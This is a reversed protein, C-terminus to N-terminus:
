INLHRKNSPGIWGLDHNPGGEDRGSRLGGDLHIDRKHYAWRSWWVTCPVHVGLSALTCMFTRSSLATQRAQLAKKRGM